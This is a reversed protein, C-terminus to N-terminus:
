GLAESVADSLAPLAKAEFWPNEGAWIASRWSPHPLTFHAPLCARFGRATETMDVGRRHRLYGAHAYAGAHVTVRLNPLAAFLRAHWLPACEPRPPLEGGPRRGPYCFGMPVLAAREPDYFDGRRDGDLRSVPRRERRGVAGRECPGPRIDGLLREIEASM